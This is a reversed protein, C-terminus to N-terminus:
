VYNTMQAMNNVETKINLLKPYKVFDVGMSTLAKKIDSDEAHPPINEDYWAAMSEMSSWHNSNVEHKHSEIRATAYHRAVEQTLTALTYGNYKYKEYQKKAIIFVVILAISVLLMKGLKTKFFGVVQEM